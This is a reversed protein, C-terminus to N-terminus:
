EIRADLASKMAENLNKLLNNVLLKRDNKKSSPMAMIEDIQKLITNSINEDKIEDLSAFTNNSDMSFIISYLNNFTYRGDKIGAKIGNAIQGTQNELIKEPTVEEGSEHSTGFWGEQKSM